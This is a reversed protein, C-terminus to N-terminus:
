LDELSRLCNFLCRKWFSLFEVFFRFWQFSLSTFMNQIWYHDATPNTVNDSSLWRGFFEFLCNKEGWCSSDLTISHNSMSAKHTNWLSLEFTVQFVFTQLLRIDLHHFRLRNHWKEDVTPSIKWFMIAMYGGNQYHLQQGAVSLNHGGMKHFKGLRFQM